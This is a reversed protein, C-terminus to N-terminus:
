VNALVVFVLMHVFRHFVLMQMCVVFVVLVCVFEWPAATLRM